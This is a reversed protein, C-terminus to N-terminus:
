QDRNALLWRRLHSLALTVAWQNINEPHGGFSRQTLSVGTHSALAVVLQVGGQTVNKYVVLGLDADDHLNIRGAAAQCWQGLDGEPTLGEVQVIEQLDPRTGVSLIEVVGDSVARQALLQAIVQETYCEAITLKRGSDILLKLVVDELRGDENGYVHDGLRELVLQKLEALEQEIQEKSDAQVWLQVSTQGAFSDYTVSHRVNLVLDKLKQQLSSQVIGVTRLVIWGLRGDANDMRQLFPLAETELLYGMERRKDPLCILTGQETEILFGSLGTESEGLLQAGKIGPAQLTLVRGTAQAAALRTFDQSGDGLGGIAIVVDSRRLAIIFADVILDLDDGVVVKYTLRANMERLTRSVYATNTDLIDGMLLRTGISVIEVNMVSKYRKLVKPLGSLSTSLTASPNKM